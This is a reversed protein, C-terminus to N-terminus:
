KVRMRKKAWVGPKVIPTQDIPRAPNKALWVDLAERTWQPTWYSKGSQAPGTNAWAMRQLIDPPMGIYRAADTLGIM